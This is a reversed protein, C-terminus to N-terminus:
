AKNEVLNIFIDELSPTYRSIGVPDGSRMLIGVATKFSVSEKLHGRLINNHIQYTEFIEAPIIAPTERYRIEVQQDGHAEKISALPGAFVVRGKDILCIQDCLKEVQDMQHTSLVIAKGADRFERIVDKLIIQNVPDLGTFPEDLILLDPFTIASVIFQIKQQNGKSLEIIKREAQDTMGFRDLWYASNDSTDKPSLGKLRGFFHIVDRIKHKQYLGREEPLYGTKKKQIRIKGSDPRIINMIMRITTTKGAGNPGLLGYVSGSSVEFSINEVATVKEFQKTVKELTLM